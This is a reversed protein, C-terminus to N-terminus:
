KRLTTLYRVLDHMMTGPNSSGTAENDTRLRGANLKATDLLPLLEAFVTRLGKTYNPM